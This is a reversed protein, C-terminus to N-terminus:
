KSFAEMIRMSRMFDGEEFVEMTLVRPRAAGAELRSVLGSLVPKALGTLDCHDKGNIIGHLHIVRTRDFYRDLHAELSEGSLIIHGIDLCVSLGHEFVVKEVLRIPYFLTEVCIMEPRVGCRLLQSISEDVATLWDDLAPGALPRDGVKTNREGQEMDLHVIYAFPNLSRTLEVIMACKEVSKERTARDPSGLRADLPMHITFTLDNPAAIDAIQRIEDASPQLSMEPSEFLVIEIDDVLPALHRVNDIVPAPRIYSTTGLRFPFAGKLPNTQAPHRQLRVTTDMERATRDKRTGRECENAAGPPAGPM